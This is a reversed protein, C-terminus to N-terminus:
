SSVAVEVSMGAFADTMGVFSGAVPMAQRIDRAVAVPILNVSGVSRNTPDFTIWGAGPVYVEAWAHTSGADSSGTRDQDPNYLYGSVIRAGFGLTRAAEAFLVAFDRCSGWGRNLTEVPTQTGETERSQYRIWAGVGSNLDALLASTDTPNARVFRTKQAMAANFALALRDDLFNKQLILRSNLERLGPGVTPKFYVALGLPDLYPSLIRYILEGSIGTFKTLHFREHPGVEVNAFAGPPLTTGNIVNDNNAEAWEYNLYGALQVADTWGYQLETSAEVANFAGLDKGTRWTLWQEVEWAEAPLLDTTYVYGFLPEDARASEAFCCAAIAIVILGWFRQKCTSSM